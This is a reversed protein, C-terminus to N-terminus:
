SRLMMHIHLGNAPAPSKKFFHVSVRHWHIFCYEKGRIGWRKAVEKRSGKEIIKMVKSVKYLEHTSDYPIQGKPVPENAMINQLSIRTTTQPPIEKKLASYYVTPHRYWVKKDM